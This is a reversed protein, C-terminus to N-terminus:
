SKSKTVMNVGAKLTFFSMLFIAFRGLFIGWIAYCAVREHATVDVPIAADWGWKNTQGLPRGLIDVAGSRGMNASRLAARRYRISRLAAFRDHQRCGATNGWWGDNIIIGL